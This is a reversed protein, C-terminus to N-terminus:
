KIVINGTGPAAPYRAVDASRRLSGSVESQFWYKSNILLEVMHPSSNGLPLCLEDGVINM